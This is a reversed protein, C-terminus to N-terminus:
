PDEKAVLVVRAAEDCALVLTVREPAEITAELLLVGCDRDRLLEAGDGALTALQEDEVGIEPRSCL